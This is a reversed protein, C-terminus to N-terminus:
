LSVEMEDLGEFPGLVTLIDGKRIRFHSHAHILQGKRSVALVLVEEPLTLEELSLGFHSPNRVEIDSIDHDDEDDLLLSVASPSRVYHDLLSIIATSKAVVFCELERFRSINGRENLHVIRHLGDYHEYITECILFNEEDSLMTVVAGFERPKLEHILEANLHQYSHITTSSKIQNQDLKSNEPCAITVQWEHLSLQKALTLAQADSGFILARHLIHHDSKKARPHAERVILLAWKFFAPGIVENLVIVSIMLTAFHVGWSPYSAAVAKSLGLGVGAQTVYGMWAVKSHNVPEGAAQGAIFSGAFIGTLRVFFLCLAIPWVTTLVDLHLTAGTITFFAVYIPLWRSHMIDHFEQRHPSKNTILVGTIMCALLPEIVLAFNWHEKSYHELSALGHFVCFGITLITFFKFNEGDIFKQSLTYSIAKAVIWGIALAAFLEAALLLLFKPDIGKSSMTAGAYTSALSFLVIVVVDMIVTVGLTTQTFPGRARMEKIVAIASSPSRAVLISAALFAVSLRQLTTMSEFFPIYPTLFHFAVISLLAVGIIIGATVFLISKIRSRYEKFYLESGAVFAIYALAVEDVYYLKQVYDHHIFDLGHPGTIIGTFLFGTIMPLHFRTFLSGIQNSSLCVLIFGFIVQLM